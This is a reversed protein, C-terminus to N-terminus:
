KNKEESWMKGLEAITKEELEEKKFGKGVLKLIFWEKSRDHREPKTDSSQNYMYEEFKKLKEM